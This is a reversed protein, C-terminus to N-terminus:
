CVYCMCLNQTLHSDSVMDNFADVVLMPTGPHTADIFQMIDKMDSPGALIGHMLVVPRYSHVM